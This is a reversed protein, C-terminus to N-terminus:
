RGYRCSWEWDETILHDAYSPAEPWIGENGARDRGKVLINIKGIKVRGERRVPMEQPLAQRPPAFVDSKLVPRAAIAGVVGTKGDSSEFVEGPTQGSRLRLPFPHDLRVEETGHAPKEPKVPNTPMVTDGHDENQPYDERPGKIGKIGEPSTDQSNRSPLAGTDIQERSEDQEGERRLMDTDKGRTRKHSLRGDNKPETHPAPFLAKLVDGKERRKEHGAQFDGAQLARFHKEAPGIRKDEAPRSEPASTEGGATEPENATPAPVSVVPGKEAAFQSVRAVGNGGEKTLLYPTGADRVFAKLRDDGPKEEVKTQEEVSRASHVPPLSAGKEARDATDFDPTQVSSEATNHSTPMAQQEHVAITGKADRPSDSHESLELADELFGDATVAGHHRSAPLHAGRAVKALLPSTAMVKDMGRDEYRYQREM